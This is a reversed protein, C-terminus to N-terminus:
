LQGLNQALGTFKVKNVALFDYAPRLRLQEREMERAAEPEAPLMGAVARLEAADLPRLARAEFPEGKLYIPWLTLSTLSNLSTLSTSLKM